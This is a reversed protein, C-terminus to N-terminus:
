RLDDAKEPALGLGYATWLLALNADGKEGHWLAKDLALEAALQQTHRQERAVRVAALLATVAVAALLLAASAGLSWVLPKHRRAWKRLRQVRTPRRALIPRDELFRRLDDALAQATAYREAPEKALAKLVVTELEAPIAANLQRPPRPEEREIQRLVQERDSGPFAPEL